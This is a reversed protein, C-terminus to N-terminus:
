RLWDSLVGTSFGARGFREFGTFGMATGITAFLDGHQRGNYALHVNSKLAGGLNGVVTYPMNKHSHNGEAVETTWVILTNDLVSRGDSDMTAKLKLALGALREAFWLQIRTIVDLAARDSPDASGPDWSIPIHSLGHWWSTTEGADVGNNTAHGATSRFNLAQDVSDWDLSSEGTSFQLTAVRTLDCAFAAALMDIQLDGIARFSRYSQTDSFPMGAAPKKCMAGGGTAMGLRQELGRLMTAHEDLRARDGAPLRATLQKYENVAFDLVSRDEALLRAAADGGGAPAALNAFLKEYMVTPNDEAFVGEFGGGARPRYTIMSNGTCNPPKRTGVGFQLSAFPTSGKSREGLVFDISPGNASCDSNMSQATLCTAMGGRHTGSANSAEINLGSLATLYPKLEPTALPKLIPSPAPDAGVTAPRWNKLVSGTSTFMFIVRRPAEAARAPALGQLFPLPLALGGAGRLLSRRTPKNM